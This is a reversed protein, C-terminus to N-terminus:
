RLRKDEDLIFGNGDSKDPKVLDDCGGISINNNVCLYNLYADVSGSKEFSEWTGNNIM